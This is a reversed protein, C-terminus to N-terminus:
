RGCCYIMEGAGLAAEAGGRGAAGLMWDGGGGVCLLDFCFEVCATSYVIEKEGVWGVGAGDDVIWALGVRSWVCRGCRIIGARGEWSGHQMQM